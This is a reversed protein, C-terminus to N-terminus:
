AVASQSGSEGGGACVAVASTGGLHIPEVVGHGDTMANPLACSGRSQRSVAWLGAGFASDTLKAHGRLRPFWYIWVPRRCRSSPPPPWLTPSSALSSNAKTKKSFTAP